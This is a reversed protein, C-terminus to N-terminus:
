IHFCDLNKLIAIKASDSLMLGVNGSRNPCIKRDVSTVVWFRGNHEATFHTSEPTYKYSKPFNEAGTYSLKVGKMATKPIHLKIDVNILIDEINECTLIRVKCNSQVKGLEKALKDAHQGNIIIKM